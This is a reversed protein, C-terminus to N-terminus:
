VNKMAQASKRVVLENSVASALQEGNERVKGEEKLAKVLSERILFGNHMSAQERSDSLILATGSKGGRQKSKGILLVLRLTNEQIMDDRLDFRVVERLEIELAQDEEHTKEGIRSIPEADLCHLNEADQDGLHVHTAVLHCAMTGVEDGWQQTKELGVEAGLSKPNQVIDHSNGPIWHLPMM